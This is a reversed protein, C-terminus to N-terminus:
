TRNCTNAPQQYMGTEVPPRTASVHCQPRFVIHCLCCEVLGDSPGKGGRRKRRRRMAKKAAAATREVHLPMERTWTTPDTQQTRSRGSSKCANKLREEVQHRCGDPTRCFLVSGQDVQFVVVGGEQCGRDNFHPHGGCVSIESCLTPSALDLFSAHTQQTHPQHSSSQAASQTAAHQRFHAGATPNCVSQYRTAPVRLNSPSLSSGCRHLTYAVANGRCSLQRPQPCGSPSPNTVRVLLAFCSRCCLCHAFDNAHSAFAVVYCMPVM